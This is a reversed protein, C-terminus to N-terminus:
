GACRPVAPPPSRAPSPQAAGAAALNHDKFLMPALKRQMHWTVYCALMRILV